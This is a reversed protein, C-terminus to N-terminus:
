LNDNIYDLVDQPALAKFKAQNIHDFMRYAVMVNDEYNHINKIIALKDTVYGFENDYQMWIITAIGLMKNFVNESPTTHTM